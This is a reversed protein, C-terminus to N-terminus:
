TNISSFHMRISFNGQKGQTKVSTYGGYFTIYRVSIYKRWTFKRCMVEEIHTILYVTIEWLFHFNLTIELKITGLGIEM